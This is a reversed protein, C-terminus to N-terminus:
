GRKRNEPASGVWFVDGIKALVFEYTIPRCAGIASDRIWIRGGGPQAPDDAYGVALTSHSAGLCVPWGLALVQRIEDLHETTLGAQPKWPNIWHVTFGLDRIKAADALAEASPKREPDFAAAYPMLEARCAGYKTFGDVVDQFFSGDDIRGTADNAAWNLFEESLPVGRDERRCLTYQYAATATFVSCTGRRGQRRPELHWRAYNPRLDVSEGPQLALMDVPLTTVHGERDGAVANGDPLFAISTAGCFLTRTGAKGAVDILRVAGDECAAAVVTGDPAVAVQRPPSPLHVERLVHDDKRRRITVGGATAVVVQQGDASCALSRIAPAAHTDSQAVAGAVLLATVIAPAVRRASRTPDGSM